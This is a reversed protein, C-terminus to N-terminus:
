PKPSDGPTPSLISITVSPNSAALGDVVASALLLAALSVGVFIVIAAWPRLLPRSL